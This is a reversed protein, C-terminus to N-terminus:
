GVCFIYVVIFHYMYMYMCSYVPDSTCVRTYMTNININCDDFLISILVKQKELIDINELVDGADDLVAAYCM